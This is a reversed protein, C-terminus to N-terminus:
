ADKVKEVVRDTTDKVKEATRVAAKKSKEVGRVAADKVKEAGRKVADATDKIGEKLTDTMKEMAKSRGTNTEETTGIGRAPDPEHSGWGGYGPFPGYSFLRRPPSMRRTGKSLLLFSAM